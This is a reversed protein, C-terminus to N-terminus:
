EQKEKRKLKHLEQQCIKLEGIREKAIDLRYILRDFINKM